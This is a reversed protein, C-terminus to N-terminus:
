PAAPGAENSIRIEGRALARLFAQVVDPDLQSGSNAKLIEVAVSQPRSARYIRTSTIADFADCVAIIRAELPIEDGALGDPYGTGDYREHHHRVMEAVRKMRPIPALIDAGVVPHQQMHLRQEEGFEGPLKLVSDPIGIKGIDHLIGGVFIDKLLEESLELEKAVTVANDAVRRSHGATYGDKADITAALAEITALFLNELDEYLLRNELAIGAEIGIATLLQLDYKTFVGAEADNSVYILGLVADRSRIPVCMVSRLRNLVVSESMKFRHDTSADHVLVSQGQETVQQIISRSLKGTSTRQGSIRVTRTVPGREGGRGEIEMLYISEASFVSAIRDAIQEMLASRDREANLLNSIEFLVALNQQAKTQRAKHPTKHDRDAEQSQSLFEAGFDGHLTYTVHQSDLVDDQGEDWTAMWAPDHAAAHEQTDAQSDEFQLVSDGIRIRDGSSLLRETVREENVFTGNHSELDQIVFGLDTRVVRAHSRSVKVDLLQIDNSWDRGITVRDRVPHFSREKTKPNVVVLTAM